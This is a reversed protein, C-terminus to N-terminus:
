SPREHCGIAQIATCIVAPQETAKPSPGTQTTVVRYFHGRVPARLRCVLEGSSSQQQTGCRPAPAAEIKRISARRVSCHRIAPTRETQKSISVLDPM